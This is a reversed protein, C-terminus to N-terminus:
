EYLKQGPQLDPYLVEVLKMPKGNKDRPPFNPEGHEMVECARQYMWAHFEKIFKQDPWGPWQKMKMKEVKFPIDYLHKLDKKSYRQGDYYKLKYHWNTWSDQRLLEFRYYDLSSIYEDHKKYVPTPDFGDTGDVIGSDEGNTTTHLLSDSWTLRLFMCVKKLTERPHLKLDEFRVVRAAQYEYKPNDEELWTGYFLDPGMDMAYYRMVWMPNRLWPTPGFRMMQSAGSGLTSVPSRAIGIHKRYPFSQIFEKRIRFWDWRGVGCQDHLFYDYGGHYDYYLAPAIRSHFTRGCAENTALFFAVMWDHLSYEKGEDLYHFINEYFIPLREQYKYKLMAPFNQRIIQKEKDDCPNKLHHVAEGACRDECFVKYLALFNSLGHWGITLLNPHSDLIMNFFDSGSFSRNIGEVAENIENISLKSPSHHPRDGNMKDYHKAYDEDTFLFVAKGRAVVPRWDLRYLASVFDEPSSYRLYLHNDSGFRESTRLRDCMWTLEKIDYADHLLIPQPSELQALFEKVRSEQPMEAEQGELSFESAWDEPVAQAEALARINRAYRSKCEARQHLLRLENKARQYLTRIDVKRVDAYIDQDYLLTGPATGLLISAVTEGSVSEMDIKGALAEQFAAIAPSSLSSLYIPQPMKELEAVMWQQMEDDQFSLPEKGDEKHVRALAILRGERQLIPLEEAEPTQDFVSTIAQLLAEQHAEDLPHPFLVAPQSVIPPQIVGHEDPQLRFGKRPIAHWVYRYTEDVLYIAQAGSEFFNICGLLDVQNQQMVAQVPLIDIMKTEDM